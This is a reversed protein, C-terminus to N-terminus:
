FSHGVGSLSQIITSIRTEARGPPTAKLWAGVNHFRNGTRRIGTPHLAGQALTDNMADLSRQSRHAIHNRLAIVSDIVAKQQATLSSFKAAHKAVLWTKARQELDGFSPFAINNGVGDALAQVQAKSLHRPFSLQGFDDFVRQPKPAAKLHESFSATLHDKFRSADRNIFAVFMDSVFGEWVVAAALLTQETLTSRDTDSTLAAVGARYFDKLDALQELFDDRVGAPSVKRM